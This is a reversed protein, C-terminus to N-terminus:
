EANIRRKFEALQNLADLPTLSFLDMQKMEELISHTPPFFNQPQQTSPPQNFLDYQSQSSKASHELQQLVEHARNLLPPPLGALKAVYLGYSRDAKGPIIKRLFVVDGRDEKVAVTFNKVGERHNELDTMEHYHTAFLTRAGVTTTDQIYEAIAWALSLGDYTSTGRGIEDLLILSRSTAMQLIRSTEMMEVMFTSHGSALNDSAGVRTFLRDVLGIKAQKAPVFSGMQAMLTILAIQRLYTSKGAMNPGTLLLLRQEELDIFTDNPIYTGESCLQEIVPHRGEEIHIIGGEHVEPCVYRNKAAIEALTSLLDLTAIRQAMHQIRQTKEAITTRIHTFLEQELSQLKQDAGTVQDELAKLEANMFREANALTQKRVFDDPVRSLNAKTVEFYYGYVQNYKVKLSDIGTRKRERTELDALLRTGGKSALRLEDVQPDYGDQIIGGERSSLPAEPLISTDILTVIDQLNDWGRQLDLFITQNLSATQDALSPLLSLSDKLHLLDRPTASGM